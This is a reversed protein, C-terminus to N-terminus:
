AALELLEGVREFLQVAIRGAYADSLNEDRIVSIVERAHEEPTGISAIVHIDAFNDILWQINTRAEQLRVLRQPNGDPFREDLRSVWLDPSTVIGFRKVSRFGYHNYGEVADPM